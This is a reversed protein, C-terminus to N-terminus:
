KNVAKQLIGPQKQEQAENEYSPRKGVTIVESISLSTSMSTSEPISKGDRNEKNQLEFGDLSPHVPLRRQSRAHNRNNNESRIGTNLHDRHGHSSGHHGHGIVGHGHGHHGLHILASIQLLGFYCRIQYM